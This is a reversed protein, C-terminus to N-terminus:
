CYDSGDSGDDRLYKVAGFTLVCEIYSTYGMSKLEINSIGLIEHEMSEDTFVRLNKWKRKTHNDYNLM